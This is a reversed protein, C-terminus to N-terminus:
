LACRPGAPPAQWARLWQPCSSCWSDATRPVDIISYKPEESALESHTCVFRMMDSECRMLDLRPATILRRGEIQRGRWTAVAQIALAHAMAAVEDKPTSGMRGLELGWQAPCPATTQAIDDPDVLRGFMYPNGNPTFFVNVRTDM